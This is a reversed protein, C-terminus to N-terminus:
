WLPNKDKDLHGSHQLLGLTCYSCASKDQEMHFHCNRQTCRRRTYTQLVFPSAPLDACYSAAPGAKNPSKGEIKLSKRPMQSILSRCLSLIKSLKLGLSHKEVKNKEVSIIYCATSTCEFCTVRKCGAKPFHPLLFIHCVSGM